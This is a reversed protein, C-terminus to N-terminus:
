ILIQIKRDFSAASIEKDKMRGRVERTGRVRYARNCRPILVVKADQQGGEFQLSDAVRREHVSELDERADSM